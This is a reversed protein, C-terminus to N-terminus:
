YFLFSEIVFLLGNAENVNRNCSVSDAGYAFDNLADVIITPYLEVFVELVDHREVRRTRYLPKM